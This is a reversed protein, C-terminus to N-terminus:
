REDEQATSEYEAGRCIHTMNERQEDTIRSFRTRNMSFGFVEIREPPPWELGLALCPQQITGGPFLLLVFDDSFTM